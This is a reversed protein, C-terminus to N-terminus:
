GWAVCGAGTLEGIGLLYIFVEGGNSRCCILNKGMHNSFQFRSVLLV